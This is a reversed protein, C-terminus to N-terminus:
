KCIYCLKANKYSEHRKNTLLKMKKKKFNIIKMAQERLSKCFKKKYDKGIYLDHKNGIDKLSLITSSMSFGSPIHENVNATPSNKPNNKCVDTKEIM